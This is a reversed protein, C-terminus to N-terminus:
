DFPYRECSFFPRKQETDSIEELTWFHDSNGDDAHGAFKSLLKVAFEQIESLNHEFTRSVDVLLTVSPYYGLSEQWVQRGFVADFEQYFEPFFRIYLNPLDNDQNLYVWQEHNQGKQHACFESLFNGVELETAHKFYLGFSEM